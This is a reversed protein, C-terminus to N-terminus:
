CVVVQVLNVVRRIYCLNDTPFKVCPHPPPSLSFFFAKGSKKIIMILDLVIQTKLTFERVCVGFTRVDNMWENLLLM